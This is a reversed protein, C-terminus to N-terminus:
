VVSCSAVELCFGRVSCCQVLRDSYLLLPLLLAQLPFRGVSACVAVPQPPRVSRHPAPLGRARRRRPVLLPGDDSTALRLRRVCHITVPLVATRSVRFAPRRPQEAALLRRRRLDPLVASARLRRRLSPGGACSPLTTPRCPAPAGRSPHNARPRSAFFSSFASSSSSPSSLHSPPSSSFHFPRSSM